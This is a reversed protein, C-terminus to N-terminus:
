GPFGAVSLVAPLILGAGFLPQISVKLALWSVAMIYSHQVTKRVVTACMHICLCMGHWLCCLSWGEPCKFNSWMWCFRGSHLWTFCRLAHCTNLALWRHTNLCYDQGILSRVEILWPKLKDDIIIDYGYCEFCHKDNNMVPQPLSIFSAPDSLPLLWEVSPFQPRLAFAWSKLIDRALSNTHRAPRRTTAESPFDTSCRFYFRANLHSPKEFAYPFNWLQLNQIALCSLNNM